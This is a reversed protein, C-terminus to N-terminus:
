KGGELKKIREILNKIIKDQENKEKQMKEIETQQEQIAKYALSIMSYDSISEGTQSLIDKSCNYGEGIVTGLRRKSNKDDEKYNFWYIDTNM